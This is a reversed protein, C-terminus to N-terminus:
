LRHMYLSDIRGIFSRLCAYISVIHGSFSLLSLLCMRLSILKGNYLTIPEHKLAYKRIHINVSCNLFWVFVIHVCLLWLSVNFQISKYCIDLVTWRFGCSNKAKNMLIMYAIINCVWVFVFIKDKACRTKRPFLKQTNPISYLLCWGCRRAQDIIHRAAFLGSFIENFLHWLVKGKSKCWQFM